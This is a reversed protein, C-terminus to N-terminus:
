EFVFGVRSNNRNPHTLVFKEFHSWIYFWTKSSLIKLENESQNTWHWFINVHEVRILPFYHTFQTFTSAESGPIKPTKPSNESPIPLGRTWVQTPSNPAIPNNTKNQNKHTFTASAPLHWCINTFLKHVFCSSISAMNTSNIFRGSYNNLDWKFDWMLVLAKVLWNYTKFLDNYSSWNRFSM